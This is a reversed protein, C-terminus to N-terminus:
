DASMESPAAADEKLKRKVAERQPLEDGPLGDFDAEGPSHHLVAGNGPRPGSQKGEARGIDDFDLM